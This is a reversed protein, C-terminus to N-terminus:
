TDGRGLHPKSQFEWGDEYRQILEDIRRHSAARDFGQEVLSEVLYRSWQALLRERGPRLTRMIAWHLAVRAVDDRSPRRLATQQQRYQRQYAASNRRRTTRATRTM